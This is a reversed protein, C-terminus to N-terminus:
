SSLAMLMLMKGDSVQARNRRAYGQRKKGEPALGGEERPRASFPADGRRSEAAAAPLVARGLSSAPGSVTLQVMHFSLSFHAM